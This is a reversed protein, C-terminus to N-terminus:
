GVRIRRYRANIFAYLGYAILGLGMVTLVWSGYPLTALERLAGSTGHAASASRHQAARILSVGIVAFIVARAAIGFCSVRTLLRKRKATVVAFDLHRSLKGRVARIFQYVGYGILALGAAIVLWRGFPQDLARATWHRSTNDSSRGGDGHHNALRLVAYAFSGYFLGRVFSGIRGAVGKWDDGQGESDTLASLLRWIAYGILGVAIVLLVLRGFPQGAIFRLADRRDAAVGGRRVGATATLLGIAAYVIGKAVYGLRALREIWPKAM